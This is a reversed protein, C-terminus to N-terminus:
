REMQARLARLSDVWAQARAIFLDAEVGRLEATAEGQVFLVTESREGTEDLRALEVRALVSGESQLGGPVTLQAQESFHPTLWPGADHAASARDKCWPPCPTPHQLAPADAASGNSEVAALPVTPNVPSLVSKSM